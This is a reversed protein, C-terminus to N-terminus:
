GSTGAEQCLLGFVMNNNNIAEDLLELDRVFYDLYWIVITLLKM